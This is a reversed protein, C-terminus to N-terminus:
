PARRAPRTTRGPLPSAGRPRLGVGALGDVIQAFAGRLARMAAERDPTPVTSAAAARLAGYLLAALADSEPSAGAEAGSARAVGRRLLLLAHREEIARMRQAGLVQPAELVVIRQSHRDLVGELFALCGALVADWPDDTRAAAEAFLAALRRHEHEFVAEFEACAAEPPDARRAAVARGPASAGIVM